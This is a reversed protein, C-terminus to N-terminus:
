ISEVMLLFEEETLIPIQLSEAKERKSGAGPGAVVYNTKKSVSGAAKGGLKEVMGKADARSFQNFSGTFVFTTDKLHQHKSFQIKEFSVGLEMCHSVMSINNPDSWFQVITEAVIPGIEDINELEEQTAKQFLDLDGLFYKELVKSIHEGVNRIGLAYVFRVFTTQKSIAIAEILNKASKEGMRDLNAVTDVSLTFIDDMNKIISKDVLQDVIKEGFGDINLALKSVFHEIHGKLQAMCSLNTCRIVVDDGFRNADHGCVPCKKPIIFPHSDKKRKEEVVKVVKPIVDGAREIIVTDGIRIDKRGIEDQNHLTANTVTVGGVFVPELKAVPTLAGTRGVQIDIEHIVTTAQQAQFKGAIAWRPSRSRTGLKERAPYHDIKFVTGDIEYPIDNRISEMQEHYQILSGVDKCEQIYPNTPLGWENLANLFELHSEFSHGDIMGAEYFYISLPRKATLKPDLQRLSGAAANRPNAFLPDGEQERTSNLQIFDQKSIFVEGRVELIKPPHREQNRLVLPIARITKLNLSINEGTYGDGRTSGHIFHGNEYVIEVGLGDLKPEGVFTFTSDDGLQKKTRDYFAGLEDQNMANALSLMPIRHALAGFSNLPKNGVRQTPSDISILEPHKEELSELSRFLNDYEGDSIVPDNLIYYRYNHDEIQKRISQIELKPNTMSQSDKEM